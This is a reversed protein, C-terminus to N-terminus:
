QACLVSVDKGNELKAVGARAASCAQQLVPKCADRAAAEDASPTIPSKRKADEAQEFLVHNCKSTARARIGAFLASAQQPDAWAYLKSGARVGNGDVSYAAAPDPRYEKRAQCTLEPGLYCVQEGGGAKVKGCIIPGQARLEGEPTLEFHYHDGYSCPSNMVTMSGLTHGIVPGETIEVTVTAGSNQARAIPFGGVCLAAGGILMAIAIIRV